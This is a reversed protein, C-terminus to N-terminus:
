CALHHRGSFPRFDRMLATACHSRTRLKSCFLGNRANRSNIKLCQGTRICTQLKSRGGNLASSSTQALARYPAGGCSTVYCWIGPLRRSTANQTWKPITCRARHAQRQFATGMRCLGFASHSACTCRALSSAVERCRRTDTELLPVESGKFRPGCHEEAGHPFGCRALELRSPATYM